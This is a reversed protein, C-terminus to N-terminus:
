LRRGKDDTGREIAGTQCHVLVFTRKGNDNYGIRHWKGVTDNGANHVKVCCVPRCGRPIPYGITPYGQLRPILIISIPMGYKHSDVQQPDLQHRDKQSMSYFKERTLEGNTYLIKWTYLKYDEPSPMDAKTM